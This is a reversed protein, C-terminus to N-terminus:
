SNFIVLVEIKKEIINNDDDNNNDNNNNNNIDDSNSLIMREERSAKDHDTDYWWDCVIERICEIAGSEVDGYWYRIYM